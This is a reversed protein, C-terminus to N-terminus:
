LHLLITCIEMVLNQYFSLSYLIVDDGTKRLDVSFATWNDIDWLRKLDKDLDRSFKHISTAFVGWGRATFFEM